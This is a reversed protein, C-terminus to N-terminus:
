KETVPRVSQGYSRYDNGWGGDGEFCYLYYAYSGSIDENCTGSWFYGISGEDRLDGDARYGAFPLFISNGNPGTVYNGRVGNYSGSTFTCNNILEMVEDLTPMRAGGGWNVHAVDYSTGSIENGIFDYYDTASNYYKYNKWTYDSKTSTEGWAYYGGYEEPSSAGVNYAAWLVSLGLDVWREDDVKTTFEKMEGNVPGGEYKISACYSYTTNPKLDSLTISQIGERNEAGIIKHGDDWSLLVQCQGDEPVNSYTCEVVASTTTISSANGTICDPEGKTKFTNVEGFRYKKNVLDEFITQYCYETDPELNIFTFSVIGGDSDFISRNQKNNEDGAKWLVIYIETPIRDGFPATALPSVYGYLEASDTTINDARGTVVQVEQHVQALDASGTYTEGWLEDITTLGMGIIFSALGIKKRLKAEETLTKPFNQIIENDAVEIHEFFQGLGELGIDVLM